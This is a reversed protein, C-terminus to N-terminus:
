DLGLFGAVAAQFGAANDINPLHGSGPVVALRAGPVKEAMDQMVAPTSGADQEGVVFLTPCAIRSLHPLLALTRIATACAQYGAVPTARIMAAVQETAAPQAARFGPSLWRELTGALIADMGGAGVAAIREDWMAQAQAPTEAFADCCVLREIRPRHSLALQLATMGGLSLGMVTCTGVGFADMVAVADAALDPIGTGGAAVASRGHGRTDYRLVRYRRTLLPIQGDWMRLDSALSNSLLIWPRDQAAEGDARAHIAGGAGQIHREIM